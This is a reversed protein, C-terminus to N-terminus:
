SSPILHKEWRGETRLVLFWTFMPLKVAAVHLRTISDRVNKMKLSGKTEEIDMRGDMWVVLFDPTYTRKPALQITFPHHVYMRMEKALILTDFFKARALEFKSDYPAIPSPAPSSGATKQASAGHVSTNGAVGGRVAKARGNADIEVPLRHAGIRGVARM